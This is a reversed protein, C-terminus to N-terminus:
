FATRGASTQGPTSGLAASDQFGLNLSLVNLQTPRFGLTGLTEGGLFRHILVPEPFFILAKRVCIGQEENKGEAPSLQKWVWEPILSKHGEEKRKYNTRVRLFPQLFKDKRFYIVSYM